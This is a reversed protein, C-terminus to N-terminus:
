IRKRDLLLLRDRLTPMDESEMWIKEFDEHRIIHVLGSLIKLHDDSREQNGIIGIMARINKHNEDFFMGKRCRLLFVHIDKDGPILVHPISVFESLATSMSAEREELMSTLTESPIGTYPALASGAAQFAGHLTEPHDIDLMMAKELLSDALDNALDNRTRLIDRLESELRDDQLQRDVIRKLLHLAAFEYQSRQKGYSLYMLLGVGAFLLLAELSSIGLEVLFYSMLVLSLVPTLPYGPIRFQPRYNRIPSERLIILAVNIAMYSLLIVTSALKVLSELPILVAIAIGAGTLLLAGVPIDRGSTKAIGPPLLHDRAMALPYRSAALIGANGTTVFAMASAVAIIIAGANGLLIGASDAIPTLSGAFIGPPLVATTTLVMAVYLVTIIIVSLLMARPIVKGPSRVEEALTTVNLLGGFSVFVFAANSFLSRMWAMSGAFGGEQVSASQEAGGGALAPLWIGRDFHELNWNASGVVIFGAMIVLLAFVLIIELTVAEGTGLLNILLFLGTLVLATLRPPLGFFVLGLEALGFVAFATKLMLALWSLLGMITGVAPGMSRTIYFYDGGAKPMATALEILALSSLLAVIGALLYSLSVAPGIRSFALGPLIFIGSSIMTGSAIAFLATTGIGPNSRKM